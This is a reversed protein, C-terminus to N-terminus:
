KGPAKAELDALFERFDDRQRLPQLDKAEKLWAVNAPNRFHGGAKALALLRLARTAYQEALAARDKSGLAVACVSAGQCLLGTSVDRGTILLDVAQLSEPQRRLDHLIAARQLHTAYYINRATVQSPNTALVKGLAAAARDLWSLAAESRGRAAELQGTRFFGIGQYVAYQVENPSDAVLKAQIERARRQIAEAEDWKGRKAMAEAQYLLSRALDDRYEPMRPFDAVLKEKLELARAALAEKRVPDPVLVSFNNCTRALEMRPSPLTPFELVLKEQISLAEQYAELAATRQGIRQLLNALGLYEGGLGKRYDFEAPFKAVLEQFLRLATRFEAEAATWKGTEFYLYGLSHHISALGRRYEAVAAFADVLQTQIRLASQYEAVGEHQRGVLGTLVDGLLKHTRALDKRHEPAAPAAATLEEGLRVAERLSEEAAKVHSHDWLLSGLSRLTEALGQRYDLTEPADAHLRRFIAEAQRLDATAEEVRFMVARLKGLRLYTRGRGAELKADGGAQDALEQYFPVAAALLEKRLDHFDAEKLRRNDAIKTTTEELAKQILAFNRDARDREAVALVKQRETEQQQRRVLATTTALAAVAALLLTAAAAMLPRHRRTWRGLRAPLAEPHAAVPEDALWHEVDAALDLATAYRDKPRLAMAKLCIAELAAPTGPKRRRPPIIDGGQAQRLAAGLDGERVPAQGTLLTYLTSGLSYIDSAPGLLDLRGAAQEPSMYAPTGVAAGVRTPELGSGSSPRLTPEEAAASEPRDVPKALGWDVILTEGYKGLMINGPKLDRHLVGRSHAYAVANCVDVFRGLLKRLALARGGPDRGPVDAEHFRQIAEKLNDGRIFRMAYFPRGDAYCGLGYVPVVGPHELGGTIEAELLFRARSEANHAHREQIEKLAVERNLEEDHAVFVEGLGGRAHPRLVRYRGAPPRADVTPLDSAHAAVPPLSALSQEVDVDDVTDLARRVESSAVAALSAHADGGHKKLKRELLFEVHGKDEPTLWGRELLLDALPTDKRAAWAACAEAFRDNDILDAQLALVGFLLNRDTDVPSSQSM